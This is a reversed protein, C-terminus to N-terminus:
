NIINMLKGDGFLDKGKGAVKFNVHVEWNRYYVPVSNWIAGSQSQDDPTLRFIIFWNNRSRCCKSTKLKWVFRVFNSTFMVSGVYDWFPVTM